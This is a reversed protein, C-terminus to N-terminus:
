SIDATLLWIPPRAMRLLESDFQLFKKKEKM